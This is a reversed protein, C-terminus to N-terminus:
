RRVPGPRQGLHAPHAEGQSPWSTGIVANREQVSESLVFASHADDWFIYQGGFSGPWMYQLVPKFQVVVEMPVFTEVELLVLLGAEDRPAIIHQKVTFTMHSYTITTAEPRVEVRQAVDVGRVPERYRPTQFHLQFDTAVKLPHVWLEAPGTETGLWASRPGTVGLYEGPRVDAILSIPSPGIEFREVPMRASAAPVDTRGVQAAAAAPLVLAGVLASVGLYRHSSM